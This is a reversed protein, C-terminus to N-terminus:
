AQFLPRIKENWWIVIEDIKEDTYTKSLDAVMSGLVFGGTIVAVKDTLKEPDTNNKIINSVLKGVAVGVVINVGKKIIAIKDMVIDKRLTEDYGWNKRRSFPCM